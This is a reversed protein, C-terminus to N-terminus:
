RETGQCSASIFGCNELMPATLLNEFLDWRWLGDEGVSDKVPKDIDSPPMSITVVESLRLDERLGLTLDFGQQLM